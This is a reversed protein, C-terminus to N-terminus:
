QCNFLKTFHTSSILSNDKFLWWSDDNDDNVVTFTCFGWPENFSNNEARNKRFM